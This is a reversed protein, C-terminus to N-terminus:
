EYIKWIGGRKFKPSGLDKVIEWKGGKTFKASKGGMEACPKGEEDLYVIDGQQILNQIDENSVQNFERRMEDASIIVLNEQNSLSKIFTSKGSGSTGIPLLIDFNNNIEQNFIGEETRSALERQKQNSENSDIESNLDLKIKPIIPQTPNEGNKVPKDNNFFENVLDNLEDLKTYNFTKAIEKIFEKIIDKLDDLFTRKTDSKKVSEISNLFAAFEPNSFAYTVIEELPAGSKILDIVAQAIENDTKENEISKFFESLKENFEAYKENSINLDIM